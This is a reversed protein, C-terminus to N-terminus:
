LFYFFAMYNMCAQREKFASSNINQYTNKLEFASIFIHLPLKYDNIHIFFNNRKDICCKFYATIFVLDKLTNFAHLHGFYLWVGHCSRHEVFTSYCVKVEVSISGMSMICVCTFIEQQWAVSYM